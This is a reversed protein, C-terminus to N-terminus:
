PPAPSAGHARLARDVAALLDDLRFPRRVEADCEVPRQFPFRLVVVATGALRPDRRVEAALQAGDVADVVVADPLQADGAGRVVELAPGASAAPTVLYGEYLLAEVLAERLDRHHELVLVHARHMLGFTHAGATM